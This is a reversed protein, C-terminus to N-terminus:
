ILLSLWGALLAGDVWGRFVPRIGSFTPMAAYALSVCTILFSIGAGYSLTGGFLLIWTFLQATGIWRNWRPPAATPTNEFYYFLRMNQYLVLLWQGGIIWMSLTIVPVQAWATGAVAVGYILPIAWQKLITRRKKWRHIGLFYFVMAIFLSTGLWIVSLPLFFVASAAVCLAALIGLSLNFQYKLHFQHRPTDREGQYVDLLRDLVYISWLSLSLVLTSLHWTPTQGEPFRLFAIHWGVAGLVVDLNLLQFWRYLTQLFSNM